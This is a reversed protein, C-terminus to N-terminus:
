QAATRDPTLVRIRGDREIVLSQGAGDTRDDTDPEGTAEPRVSLLGLGVHIRDNPELGFRAAPSGPVVHRVIVTDPEADDERWDLGFPLPKGRLHVELERRGAPEGREVVFTAINSAAHVVPRLDDHPTPNMGDISIIRDGVELGGRDAPSGPDVATVIVPDGATRQWNWRIGLRPQPRVIQESQQRLGENERRSEPRFEPTEPREAVDLAVTLMLRAVSQLGEANIRDPDDSPRHYDDHLGTHFMLYPVDREFFPLHDSDRRQQWDFLLEMDTQMNATSTAYRLGTGTRVGYVTLRDERLRGIMDVNVLFAPRLGAPTPHTVWHTSGLLGKEEADWLALLITHRPPQELTALAEALELLAATGSANDDAGNHIQGFPGYSNTRNGRGVHDYHASIVICEKAAVEADRGPLMALVNRFGNGFEQFYSGDDGAPKLGLRRFHDAIYASAARGGASGSERGELTDSALFNVHDALDDAQISEIASAVDGSQDGALVLHAPLLTLCILVLRRM